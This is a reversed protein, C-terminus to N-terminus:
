PTQVMRNRVIVPRTSATSIPMAVPSVEACSRKPPTPPTTVSELWAGTGPTVIVAVLLCVPAVRTTTVPASPAYRM